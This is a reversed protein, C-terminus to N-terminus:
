PLDLGQGMPLIRVRERVGPHARLASELDKLPEDYGDDGDPFTAYHIPIFTTADLAMAADLAEGPSEHQAEMFSRPLYSGIPLLAARIPKCADRIQAFHSGWATDGAFYVSGTSGTIVFGGWLARNEDWM